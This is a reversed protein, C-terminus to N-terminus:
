TLDYRARSPGGAELWQTYRYNAAGFSIGMADKVYNRTKGSDWLRFAVEVGRATLKMGSKNRPDAPNLGESESAVDLQKRAAANDWSSGLLEELMGGWCTDAFAEPTFQRGGEEQPAILVYEGGYDWLRVYTIWDESGGPRRAVLALNYGPWGPEGTFDAVKFHLASRSDSKALDVLIRGEGYRRVPKAIRVQDPAKASLQVLRSLVSDKIAKWTADRVPAVFAWRGIRGEGEVEAAPVDATVALETPKSPSPSVIKMAPPAVSSATARDILTRLGTSVATWAEDVNSWTSIAKNGAPLSNLRGFVTHTWDCSRIVLPVIICEERAQRKMAADLEVDFCYQSGLFDWSVLLIVIDAVALKASIARDINDGAAIQGDVWPEILGMATLPKLVQGLQEKYESDKHSYSIFVKLPASM